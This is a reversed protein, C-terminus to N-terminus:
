VQPERKSPLYIQNCVISEGLSQVVKIELSCSKQIFIIVLSM